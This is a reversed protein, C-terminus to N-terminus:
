NDSYASNHLIINEIGKRREARLKEAIIIHYIEEATQEVDENIIIYDFKSAMKIEDTAKNLRFAMSEPTETGRERLRKELESLSPPLLFINCATNYTYLISLSGPVTVDMIIDEGALVREEIPKRPTGYFNGGYVDHELMQNHEIMLAFEEKSKFYYDVGEVEGQRPKRTTASVSHALNPMKKKLASIVTGKGVGSPGSVCILMGKPPYDKYTQIINNVVDNNLDGHLSESM